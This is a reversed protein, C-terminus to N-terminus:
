EGDTAPHGEGPRGVLDVPHIVFPWRRSFLQDQRHSCEAAADRHRYEDGPSARCELDQSAKDSAGPMSRQMCIGLATATTVSPQRASTMLRERRCLATLSQTM